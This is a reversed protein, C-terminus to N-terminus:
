YIDRLLDKLVLLSAIENNIMFIKKKRSSFQLVNISADEKHYISISPDYVVVGRASMIQHFLINEEQYLFTNPNFGKLKDFYNKSFVICSGHIPVNLRREMCVTCEREKYKILQKKISWWYERLYNLYFKTYILEKKKRKLMINVQNESKIFSRLPNSAYKGDATYILPGLVWFGTEDFCKEVKEVFDKQYIVTDNNVCAIFKPNYKSRAFEIGANNGRAFGVNSDLKLIDVLNDNEYRKTLEDGSLNPSCNDVVVIKVKEDSIKSISDICEMTDKFSLYHLIIFVFNM